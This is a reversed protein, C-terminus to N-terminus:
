GSPRVQSGLAAQSPQLGQLGSSHCGRGGSIQCLRAALHIRAQSHRPVVRHPREARAYTDPHIRSQHGSSVHGKPIKQKCASFRQRVPTYADLLGAQRCLCGGGAVRAVGTTALTSFRYAIWQRTFIDLVNFCYCWGDAPGCWIYTIDTEWIQNPRAAKVPKWRTKTSQTAGEQRSWGMRKYIRRVLKRNVPTGLRRSMEAAMRRTGYFPMEERIQQILQLMDTDVATERAKPKYYWRKRTVGCWKLAKTLSMQRTMEQVAMM